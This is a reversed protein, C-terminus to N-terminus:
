LKKSSAGDVVDSDLIFQLNLRLIYYLHFFQNLRNIPKRTEMLRNSVIQLLTKTTPLCDFGKMM